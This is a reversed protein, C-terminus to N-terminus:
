PANLLRDGGHMCCHGNAQIRAFSPPPPVLMLVMAVSAKQNPTEILAAPQPLETSTALVSPAPPPLGVPVPMLVPVVPCPPPPESHIVSMVPSQSRAGPLSFVDSVWVSVSLRSM